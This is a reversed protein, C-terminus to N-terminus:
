GDYKEGKTSKSLDVDKLPIVHTRYRIKYYFFLILFLPVSMYTILINSWDMKAFAEVNQGCIVVVCLIFAFIPGFPYLTAHYKLDNVSNGQAVYALRFRFHSIAIGLWAIFGCLGSADTLYMYAQPVVFQTAFALTSVVM